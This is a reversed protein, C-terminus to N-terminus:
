FNIGAIGACTHNPKTIDFFYEEGLMHIVQKEQTALYSRDLEGPNESLIVMVGSEGLDITQHCPVSLLTERGFHSV